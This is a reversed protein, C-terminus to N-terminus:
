LKANVSPQHLWIVAEEENEFYRTSIGLAEKEEIMQQISIETFFDSPVLFALKVLGSQIAPAFYNIGAWKQLDPTITFDYTSSDAFIYKPKHEKVMSAMQLVINKFDEATMDSTTKKWRNSMQKNEKNFYIDVFKTELVIKDM